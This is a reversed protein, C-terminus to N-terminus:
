AETGFDEFAAARPEVAIAFHAFCDALAAHVFNETTRM